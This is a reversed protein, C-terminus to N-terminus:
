KRSRLQAHQSHSRDLGTWGALVVFEARGHLPGAHCARSPSHQRFITTSSGGSTSMDSSEPGPRGRESELPWPRDRYPHPGQSSTAVQALQPSDRRSRVMWRLRRGGLALGRIVMGHRVTLASGHSYSLTHPLAECTDYVHMDSLVRGALPYSDWAVVPELSFAPWKQALACIKPRGGTGRSVLHSDKLTVHVSSLPIRLIDM